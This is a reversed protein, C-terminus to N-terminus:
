THSHESSVNEKKLLTYTKLRKGFSPVLPALAEQGIDLAAQIAEGDM